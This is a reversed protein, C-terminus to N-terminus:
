KYSCSIKAAALTERRLLLEFEQDSRIMGVLTEFNAINEAGHIATGTEPQIVTLKGSREIIAGHRLGAMIITKANAHWADDEYLFSLEGTIHDHTGAKGKIIEWKVDKGIVLKEGGKEKEKAGSQLVLDILKGHKAASSGAPKWDKMYKAMYTPAESKARNTIVQNTFMLTTENIGNVGSVIPYYHQFFRKLLTAQAGQQPFDSFDNLMAEASPCAASISDVGIIHCVKQAALNLVENLLDEMTPAQILLLEGIGTSLEKVEAKTLSPVGRAKRHAQHQEINEMPIAVKYGCKRMFFFDCAGEVPAYAICANPGYIRQHMAFTKYLLWTKGANDPGSIYSVGGAPFGGGLDVDLQMIGTPRRLFYPNPAEEAFVLINRKADKNAKNKIALLKKKREAVTMAEDLSM